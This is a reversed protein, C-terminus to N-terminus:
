ALKDLILAHYLADGLNSYGDRYKYDHDEAIDKLIAEIEEAKDIELKLKLTRHTEDKEETETEEEEEVDKLFDDEIDLDIEEEPLIATLGDLDTLEDLLKDLLERDDEGYRTNDILGIEKAKDDSIDKLITVPIETWGLEKAAEVRHYGGLIELSGDTLERCTVAKFAGYRILSEKLKEFEKREVKNSNWTNPVLDFPSLYKLEM